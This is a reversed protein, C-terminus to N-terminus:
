NKSSYLSYLLQRIENILKQSNNEAKSQALTIPLRSLMQDPTLIKLGQEQQNRRTAASNESELDVIRSFINLSFDGEGWRWHQSLQLLPYKLCFHMDRGVNHLPSPASRCNKLDLPFEWINKGGNDWNRFCNAFKKRCSFWVKWLRTKTKFTISVFMLKSKYPM